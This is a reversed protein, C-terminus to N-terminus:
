DAAQLRSPSSYVSAHPLSPTSFISHHGVNDDVDISLLSAATEEPNRLIRARVVSPEMDLASCVDKFSIAGEDSIGHIWAYDKHYRLWDKEPSEPTPKILCEAADGLIRAFFVFQANKSMYEM